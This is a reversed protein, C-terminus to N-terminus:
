REGEEFASATLEKMLILYELSVRWNAAFAEIAGILDACECLALVSSNQAVADKLEQYEEKIKSFKGLEGSKIKAIHYGM